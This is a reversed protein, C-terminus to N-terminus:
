VAAGQTPDQIAGPYSGWGVLIQTEYQDIQDPIPRKEVRLKFEVRGDKTPIAEKSFARIFEEPTTGEEPLIRIVFYDSRSADSSGDTGSEFWVGRQLANELTVESASRAQDTRLKWFISGGGGFHADAM